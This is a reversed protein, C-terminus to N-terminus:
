FEKRLSIGYTAPEKPYSMVSGPVGIPSFGSMRYEEDLVNRGWLTVTADYEELQLGLRLNLLEHEPAKLFPDNSVIEAEGLRVYELLLSGDISENIRFSQNAALRLQDPNHDLKDGSRDCATTNLGGTSDGPDPRNTHFPAATWCPGEEFDRFEGVTKAYGLSLTLRDAPLWTLEVEGGWTEVSAANLLVLGGEQVSTVQLDDIDTRHLAMNLRLRQAPFEGKLGIEFSQSTEPDFVYDFM